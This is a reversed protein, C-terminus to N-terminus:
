PKGGALTDVVTIRSDAKLEKASFEVVVDGAKLGELVQVKGDLSSVGTRVPVFQLESGALRWVGTQQGLHKVAANPLLPAKTTAPLTVTVEALEGVSLMAGPSAPSAPSAAPREFAVMAIREETVSDSVAEIRAVKGALPQRPNSRLVIQAPLGAALGTSRGQDFRVKVWLSAPDILKVVAQGAVVTSGPEADRSTVVGDAPATLRVTNRQQRLAAREADLRRLDAGAAAVNAVASSLGAEASTQEQLKGEVVGSSIFDQKGLDVYRRANAAAVERKAMADKQQAQAAAGASRARAISADLAVLRDDLDVPDMEALLQGAKVADGVDVMLRLVRGPVTPGILYARRAEVTGIGFLSPTLTGEAVTHATVRVPALPGTRLMVFAMAAVLLVALLGLGLRKTWTKDIKM